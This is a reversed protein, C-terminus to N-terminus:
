PKVEALVGEVAPLIAAVIRAVGERTPHLGDKQNLKPDGAVGDLFFPYLAVGFRRALDPYIADFRRQYDAGLNPAARMGMLLTAVHASRAKELVQALAAEAAAPDLGRLMDNAGLEVILADTGEPVSWEYRALGDAATDGSVGANAVEVEWGRAKLARALADPFAEGPALGYGATLSDGLAVVHLLRAEAPVAGLGLAALLVGLRAVAFVQVRIRFHGYSANELRLFRKV